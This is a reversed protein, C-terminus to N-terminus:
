SRSMSASKEYHNGKSDMAIVSLTKAKRGAEFALRVVPNESMSFNTEIDLIRVGDLEAVINNVYFAPIYNRSVQDFQMGSNNPHSIKIVAESYPLEDSDNVEDLLLKMKGARAMAADMDSLAPASCGGSAKVFRESMHLEGNDLVAVARVHTYENIRIRTELAHWYGAEETFRFIGALPLPNQDVFLYLERIQRHGDVATITIPVTAADYARKPADLSVLEDGTHVVTDGFYSRKLQQWREDQAEAHSMGLVVVLLMVLGLRLSFAQKMARKLM